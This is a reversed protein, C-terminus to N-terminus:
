MNTNLMETYWYTSHGHNKFCVTLYQLQTHCPTANHSIIHNNPRAQTLGVSANSCKRFNHTHKCGYVTFAYINKHLGFTRLWSLYNRAHMHAHSICCHGAQQQTWSPSSGSHLMPTFGSSHLRGFNVCVQCSRVSVSLPLLRKELGNGSKIVYSHLFIQSHGPSSAVLAPEWLSYLDCVTTSNVEPLVMCLRCEYLALFEAWLKLTLILQLRLLKMSRLFPQVFYQKCCIEAGKCCTCWM